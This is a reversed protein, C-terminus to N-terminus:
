AVGSRDSRGRKVETLVDELLARNVSIMDALVGLMLCVFSATLVV